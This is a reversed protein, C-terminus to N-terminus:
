RDGKLPFATGCVMCFKAGPPHQTNHCVPCTYDWPFERFLKSPWIAKMSDKMFVPINFTVCDSVISQVWEYEPRVKEKRNGTEAGIIVWEPMPGSGATLDVPGLLPEISLFWHCGIDKMWAASDEGKTVTSGFWFNDEHPLLAMHDLELHRKPYKTLFLYRHQPAKRCADLVEVIWRTPVWPGFLEAMSCVFITQGKTKRAPEGLRYRHMTPVFGFPYPQNREDQYFPEKLEFCEVVEGPKVGKCKFREAIRKAYCYPCGRKCGTVPNWTSDCWEIRTENM